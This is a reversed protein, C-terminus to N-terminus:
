STRAPTAATTTTNSLLLNPHLQWLTIGIVGLIVAV